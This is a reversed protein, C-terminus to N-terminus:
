IENLQMNINETLSNKQTTKIAFDMCPSTKIDTHEEKECLSYKM